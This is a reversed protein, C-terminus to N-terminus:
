STFKICPFATFNHVGRPNIGLNKVKSINIDGTGLVFSHFMFATPNQLTHANSKGNNNKFSM